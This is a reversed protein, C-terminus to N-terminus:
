LQGSLLMVWIEQQTRRKVLSVPRELQQQLYKQLLSLLAMDDDLFVPTLGLSFATERDKPLASAGALGAVGCLVERRSVVPGRLHKNGQPVSMRKLRGEACAACHRPDARGITKIRTLNIAFHTYLLATFVTLM